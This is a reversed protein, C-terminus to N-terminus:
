KKGLFGIDAKESFQGLEVYAAAWGLFGMLRLVMVVVAKRAFLVLGGVDDTM